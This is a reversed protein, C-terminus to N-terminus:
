EAAKHKQGGLAGSAKVAEIEAYWRPADAMPIYM